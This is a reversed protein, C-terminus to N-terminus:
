RYKREQMEPELKGISRESQLGSPRTARSSDHPNGTLKSEDSSVLATERALPARSTFRSSREVENQGAVIDRQAETLMRGKLANKAKRQRHEAHRVKAEAKETAVSAQTTALATSSDDGLTRTVDRLTHSEPGKGLARTRSSFIRM